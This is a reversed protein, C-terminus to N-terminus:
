LPPTDCCSCARFMSSLRSSAAIRSNLLIARGYGADRELSFMRAGVESERCIQERAQRTV